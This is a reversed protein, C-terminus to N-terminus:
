NSLSKVFKHDANPNKDQAYLHWSRSHIDWKYLASNDGVGFVEPMLGASPTGPVATISVIKVDEM